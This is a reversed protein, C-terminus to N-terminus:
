PSGEPCFVRAFISYLFLTWFFYTFCSVRSSLIRLSARTIFNKKKGWNLKRRGEDFSNGEARVGCRIDMFQGLCYCVDCALACLMHDLGYSRFQIMLRFLDYSFCGEEPDSWIWVRLLCSSSLFLFNIEGEIGALCGPLWSTLTLRFVKRTWEREFKQVCWVIADNNMAVDRM